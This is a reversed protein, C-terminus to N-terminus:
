RQFKHGRTGCRVCEPQSKCNKAMHGFKQCHWCQLADAVYDKVEYRIRGLIVHSPTDNIFELKLFGTVHTTFGRVGQKWVKQKIWEISSVPTGNNSLAAKYVEIKREM